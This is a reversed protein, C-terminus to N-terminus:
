SVGASIFMGEFVEGMPKAVFITLEITIAAYEQSMAM